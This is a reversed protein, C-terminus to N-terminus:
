EGTTGRRTFVLDGSAEGEAGGEVIIRRTVTQCLGLGTTEDIEMEITGTNKDPSHCAGGANEHGKGSSELCDYCM